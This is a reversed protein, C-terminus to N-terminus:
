DSTSTNTIDSIVSIRNASNAGNNSTKYNATIIENMGSDYVIGLPTAGANITANVRIADAHAMNPTSLAVVIFFLISISAISFSVFKLSRM